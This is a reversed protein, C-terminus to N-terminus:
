GPTLGRYGCLRSRRSWGRASDRIPHGAGSTPHRHQLWDSALNIRYGINRVTIISSGSGGLKTRLRSMHVDVTRTELNSLTRHGWVRELLSERSLVRGKVQLLEYLLRYEKETLSIEVDSVYAMWESPVMRINGARLMETSKAAPHRRQLAAIRALLEEIAFPKALYDDSGADLALIREALDNSEGLMITRTEAMDPNARINKCLRIGGVQQISREVIVFEPKQLNIQRMVENSNNAHIVAFGAEQM